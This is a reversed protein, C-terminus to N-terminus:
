VIETEVWMETVSLFLFSGQIENSLYRQTEVGWRQLREIAGGDVTNLSGLRVRLEDDRYLMVRVRKALQSHLIVGQEDDGHKVFSQIAIKYRTVAPDYQGIQYGDPNWSVPYVGMSGTPDTPRLPRRLVHDVGTLLDLSTKLEEVVNVPFDSMNEGDHNFDSDM